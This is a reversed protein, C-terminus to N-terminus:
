ASTSAVAPAPMVAPSSAVMPTAAGLSQCEYVPPCNQMFPGQAVCSEGPQCSTSTCNNKTDLGHRMQPCSTTQAYTLSTFLLATTLLLLSKKM